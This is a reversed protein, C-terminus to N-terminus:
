QEAKSETAQMLLRAVRCFLAPSTVLNAANAGAEAGLGPVVGSCTEGPQDYVMACGGVTEVAPLFICVAWTQGQNHFHM